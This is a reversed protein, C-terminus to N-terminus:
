SDPGNVFSRRPPSPRRGPDRDHAARAAGATWRHGPRDRGIRRPLTPEASRNGTRTGVRLRHPVTGPYEVGYEDDTWPRSLTFHSYVRYTKGRVWSGRDPM